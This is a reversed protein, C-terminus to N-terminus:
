FDKSWHMGPPKVKGAKFNQISIFNSKLKFFANKNHLECECGSNQFYLGQANASTKCAHQECECHLWGAESEHWPSSGPDSPRRRLFQSWLNQKVQEMTMCELITFCGLGANNVLYSCFFLLYLIGVITYQTTYLVHPIKSFMNFPSLLNPFCHFKVSVKHWLEFLCVCM